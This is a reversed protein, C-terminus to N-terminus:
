GLFPKLVGELDDTQTKKKIRTNQAKRADKEERLAQLRADREAKFREYQKVALLGDSDRDTEAKVYSAHYKQCFAVSDANGEAEYIRALLSMVAGLKMDDIDSDLAKLLYPKSQLCYPSHFM